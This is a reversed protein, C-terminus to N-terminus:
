SEPNRPATGPDFLEVVLKTIAEVLLHTLAPAIDDLILFGGSYLSTLADAIIRRVAREDLAV